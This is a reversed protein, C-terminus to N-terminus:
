PRKNVIRASYLNNYDNYPVDRVAVIDCLDEFMLCFEGEINNWQPGFFEHINVSDLFTKVLPISKSITYIFNDHTGHVHIIPALAIFVNIKNQLDGYGDALASFM